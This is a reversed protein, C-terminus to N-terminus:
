PEELDLPDPLAPVFGDLQATVLLAVGAYGGDPQIPQAQQVQVLKCPGGFLGLNVGARLANWLQWADGSLIRTASDYDAPKPAKPVQKGGPTSPWCRWVQIQYSVGDLVPYPHDQRFVDGPSQNPQFPLPSTQAVFVALTACDVAPYGISVFRREPAGWPLEDLAVTAFDLLNSATDYLDSYAGSV